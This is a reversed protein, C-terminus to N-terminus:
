EEESFGIRADLGILRSELDYWGKDGYDFTYAKIDINM